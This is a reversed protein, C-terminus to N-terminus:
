GDKVACGGWLIKCPAMMMKEILYMAAAYTLGFRRGKTIIRFPYSESEWLCERQGSSYKLVVSRM